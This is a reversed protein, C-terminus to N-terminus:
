REDIMEFFTNESIISIDNGKLALAEAKKMKSTRGDKVSAAFEANGVVLYNTKKTINDAPIGGLQAVLALAPKREMRELAGTFVVTKGYIPNDEDPEIDDLNMSAIFEDYSQTHSHNSHHIFKAAFEAETMSDLIISKMHNYCAAAVECDALSRHASDQPVACATAIDSLRYHELGQFLKKAIRMINIHDNALPPLGYLITADYIFNVDFAVNQGVLIDNGLFALYQPLAEQLTPADAVMENSIGTLQAIYDPIKRPPKVLSSFEDTKKGNTFKVAALEIINDYQFDFGTTEVDIVVYNEPLAIISNGKYERNSM